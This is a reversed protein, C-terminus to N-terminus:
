PAPLPPQTHHRAHVHVADYMGQGTRIRRQCLRQRVHLGPQGPCLGGAARQRGEPPLRWWIGGPPEQLHGRADIKLCVCFSVVLTKTKARPYMYLWCLLLLAAKKPAGAAQPPPWLLELILMSELNLKSPPLCRALDRLIVLIDKSLYLFVFFFAALLCAHQHWWASLMRARAPFSYYSWDNRPSVKAEMVDLDRALALYHESLSGNGIIENVDDDGPHEYSARHRGM